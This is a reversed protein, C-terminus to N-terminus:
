RMAWYFLSDMTASLPPWSVTESDYLRQMLSADPM